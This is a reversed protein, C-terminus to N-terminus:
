NNEFNNYNIKLSKLAPFEIIKTNKEIDIFKVKLNILSLIELKKLLNVSINILSQTEIYKKTYEDLIKLKVLNPFIDKIVIEKM